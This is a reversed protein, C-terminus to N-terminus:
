AIAVRLYHVKTAALAAALLGGAVWAPLRVEGGVLVLGGLGDDVAGLAGLELEPDVEEVGAVLGM